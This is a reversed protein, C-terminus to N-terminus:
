FQLLDYHITFGVFYGPSLTYAGNQKSVDLGLGVAPGIGWRKRAAPVVVTNTIYETQSYIKLSDLSPEIGSVVAHYEPEDYTREERDLMVCLTDHLTVTDRIPYPVREVVKRDRYKPKYVVITDILRLTDVQTVQEIIEPEVTSRGYFFSIAASLLLAISITIIYTSSKM